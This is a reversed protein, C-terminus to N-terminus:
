HNSEDNYYKLMKLLALIICIVTLPWGVAALWRPCDREGWTFGLEVAEFLWYTAFCGALYGQITIEM